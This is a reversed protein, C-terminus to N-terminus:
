KKAKLDFDLTTDEQPLTRKELHEPFLPQGFPAEDGAKGDFGSIRISYDGGQVGVGAQSTDFKGDIINAFGQLGEKQPDFFILGKPVPKGAYSITGSVRYQKPQAPGCGALLVSGLLLGM